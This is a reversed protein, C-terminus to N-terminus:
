ESLLFDDELTDIGYGEEKIINRAKSLQKVNKDLIKQEENGKKGYYVVIALLM